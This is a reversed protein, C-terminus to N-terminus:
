GTDWATERVSQPFRGYGIKNQGSLVIDGCVAELRKRRRTGDLATESIRRAWLIACVAEQAAGHTNGALGWSDNSTLSPSQGSANAIQRIARRDSNRCNNWCDFAAWFLLRSDPLIWAGLNDGDVSSSPAVTAYWLPTFIYAYKKVDSEFAIESRRCSLSEKSM